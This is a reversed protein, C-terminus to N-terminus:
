SQPLVTRSDPRREAEAHRERRRAERQHRRLCVVRAQVGAEAPPQDPREPGPAHVGDRAHRALGSDEVESRDAAADPLRQVRAARPVRHEVRLGDARDARNAHRRGLRVDDVHARALGVHPRLVREAVPHVLGGVGPLRPRVDAEVVRPVDPPHDHVGLVRVHHEDGREAVDVARVGVAADEAGAVAAGRPLLHEVLVLVDARDVQLEVRLVRLDHVGREPVRPTRRPADVRRRVARAAADELRGVAARRPLRQRRPQRGLAEPADADGHRGGVAPADVGDHVRLLAPEVAGVVRARRPRLHRAVLADPAAAPVEALQGHIRRVGVAHVDQVGRRVARVVAALGPRAM